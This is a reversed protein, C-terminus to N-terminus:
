LSCNQRATITDDKVIVNNAMVKGSQLYLYGDVVKGHEMYEPCVRETYIVREAKDSVIKGDGRVLAKHWTCNGNADHQYWHTLQGGNEWEKELDAISPFNIVPFLFELWQPILVSKSQARQCAIYEERTVSRAIKWSSDRFQREKNSSPIVAITCIVPSITHLFRFAM